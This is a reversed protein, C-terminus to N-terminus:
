LSGGFLYAVKGTKLNRALVYDCSSVISTSSACGGWKAFVVREV